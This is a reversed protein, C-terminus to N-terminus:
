MNCNHSHKVLRKEPMSCRSPFFTKNQKEFKIKRLSTKLDGKVVLIKASIVRNVNFIEFYPFTKPDRSGSRGTIFEYLIQKWLEFTNNRFDSTKMQRKGANTSDILTM